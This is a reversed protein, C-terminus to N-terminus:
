DRETGRKCPCKLNCKPHRGGLIIEGDWIRLKWWTKMTWKAMYSFMGMNWPNPGPYWQATTAPPTPHPMKWDLMTLMSVYQADVELYNEEGGGVCM